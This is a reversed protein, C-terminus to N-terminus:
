SQEVMYTAVSISDRFTPLYMIVKGHLNRDIPEGSVDKVVNFAAYYRVTFLVTVGCRFGSTVIKARIEIDFMKMAEHRESV